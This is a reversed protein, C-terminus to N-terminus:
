KFEQNVKLGVFSILCKTKWITSFFINKLWHNPCQVGIGPTWPEFGNPPELTSEAKWGESTVWILVLVEQLNLPSDGRLPEAANICNFEM